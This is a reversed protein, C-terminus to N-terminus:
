IELNYIFIYNGYVTLAAPESLRRSAVNEVVCTYNAADSLRASLVLLVHGDASVRLGPEPTRLPQGNRLWSVVPPPVGAPPICRM